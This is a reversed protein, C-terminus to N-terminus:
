VIADMDERIEANDTPLIIQVTTGAGYISAIHIGFDKGYRLKIREEVNKLGYGDSSITNSLMRKLTEPRM